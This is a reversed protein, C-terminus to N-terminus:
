ANVWTLESFLFLNSAGQYYKDVTMQYYKDATM